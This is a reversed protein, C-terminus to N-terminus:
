ERRRKLEGDSRSRKPREGRFGEGCGSVLQQNGLGARDGVVGGDVCLGDLRGDILKGGPASAGDDHGLPDEDGASEEEFRPDVKAQRFAGDELTGGVERVKGRLARADFAVEHLVEDGGEDIRLVTVSELQSAIPDEVTGAHGDPLEEPLISSFVSVKRVGAYRAGTEHEDFARLVDPDFANGELIGLEPVAM